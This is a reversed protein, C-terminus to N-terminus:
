LLGRRRMEAEAPNNAPAVPRMPVPAGGKPSAAAKDERDKMFKRYHVMPDPLSDMAEDAQELTIKGGQFQRAIKASRVKNEQVGRMVSLSMENGDPTSGITGLSKLFGMVDRDSMTGSGPDRLTPAIRNVMADFAQIESLGKIPVGMAEAYPGAKAKFEALKGTQISRSLETLVGVDAVLQQAAQGGAAVTKFRDAIAKSNEKQLTTEKDGVNTTVNMAANRAKATSWTEYDMPRKGPDVSSKYYEYEQVSNPKDEKEVDKRLKKLELQYKPDNAREQAELKKKLLLQVNAQEAEPLWKFAPDAQFKMLREISPGAMQGGQSVDERAPLLGQAPMATRPIADESGDNAAVSPGQAIQFPAQSPMQSPPQQPQAGLARNTWNQRSDMGVIGPRLFKNTFIQTAARPDTVDRLNNLVGGEPTNQLEHKLFGYNAGYSTPDLNNQKAWGEFAVRRPGTWQAYGFGGRSGPVLPKVEQMTGFGASEHGLSGVIGASAERPLGFDKQLDAMLRPAVLDFTEPTKGGSPSVGPWKATNIDGPQRVLARSVEAIGNGGEPAAAWQPLNVPADATPEAIQPGAAANWAAQMPPPTPMLDAAPAPALADPVAAVPVSPKGTFMENLERRLGGTSARGGRMADDAEGMMARAIWAQGIANLGEGVNQPAAKGFIRAAFMAAMERKKAATEPTEGKDPSFIYAM